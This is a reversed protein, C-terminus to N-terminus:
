NKKEFEAKLASNFCEEPTSTDRTCRIHAYNTKTNLFNSSQFYWTKDKKNRYMDITWSHTYNITYM